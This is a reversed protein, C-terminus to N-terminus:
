KLRLTTSTSVTEKKTSIADLESKGILKEAKAVAVSVCDWMAEGKSKATELFKKVDVIRQGIKTETKKEAVAREGSVMVDGAQTNLWGLVETELADAEAQLTEIKRDHKASAIRMEDEHREVIPALAADKATQATQIKSKVLAWEDARAKIASQSLKAM